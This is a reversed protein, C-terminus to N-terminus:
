LYKNTTIHTYDIVKKYLPTNSLSCLYDNHKSTHENQNEFIDNGKVFHYFFLSYAHLTMSMDSVRPM